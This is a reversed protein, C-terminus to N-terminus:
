PLLIKASLVTYYNYFNKDSLTRNIHWIDHYVSTIRISPPSLCSSDLGLITQAGYHSRVQFLFFLIYFNMQLTIKVATIM